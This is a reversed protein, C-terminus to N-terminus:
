GIFSGTMQLWVSMVLPQQVCSVFFSRGNFRREEEGDIHLEDDVPYLDDMMANMTAIVTQRRMSTKPPAMPPMRPEIGDM